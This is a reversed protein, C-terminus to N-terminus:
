KAPQERLSKQVNTSLDSVSFIFKGLLEELSVASQTITIEGGDALMKADGGPALSLVKAGLLGDSSIEASSDKPLRLDDRVTFTIIAQYTGPDIAAQTVMGIKVGAMRVDSGVTVGSISDFRAHLTYGSGSSRGTHAVAYGMFAVAVSLVLAGTALESLDRKAM